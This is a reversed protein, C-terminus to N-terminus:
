PNARMRRSLIAIDQSVANILRLTKFWRRHLLSLEGNLREAREALSMPLVKDLGLNDGFLRKLSLTIGKRRAHIEYLLLELRERRDYANALRGSLEAKSLATRSM